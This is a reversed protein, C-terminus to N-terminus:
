QAPITLGWHSTWESGALEFIGQEQGVFSIARESGEKTPTDFAKLYVLYTAGQRLAKLGEIEYRTDGVTGGINRIVVRGKLDGKIVQLVEAQQDNYILARGAKESTWAARDASNWHVDNSGTPRVVAIWDAGLDLEDLTYASSVAAAVIHNTARNMTTISIAGVALVATLGGAALLRGTRM